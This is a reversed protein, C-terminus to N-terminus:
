GELSAGGLSDPCSFTAPGRSRAAALIEPSSRHRVLETLERAADDSLSM